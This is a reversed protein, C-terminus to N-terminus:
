ASPCPPSPRTTPPFSVRALWAAGSGSSPSRTLRRISHMVKSLDIDEYGLRARYVMYNGFVRQVYKRTEQFPILEVWVVPDIESSRPDGFATIWKNANGPGANYAAAALLLSGDYAALQRDLYSAGLQTNYLPDTTLKAPSYALGIKGATEKATGPMLQMLGRAGASSVANVQFRSEQRAVAYIAAADVAAVKTAPLATRPSVSAPRAAHRAPRRHRRDLDCPPARRDDAGATGRSGTRRRDKSIPALTRLLAGAKEAEGNAALLHIAQVVENRNFEAESEKWAPM